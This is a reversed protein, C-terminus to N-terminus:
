GKVKKGQKKPPEDKEEPMLKLVLEGQKEEVSIRKGIEFGLEQLWRGQLRILPAEKRDYASMYYITLKRQSM